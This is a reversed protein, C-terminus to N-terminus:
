SLGKAGGRLMLVEYLLACLGYHFNKPSSIIISTHKIKIPLIETMGQTGGM